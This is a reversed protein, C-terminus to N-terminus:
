TPDGSFLEDYAPTRLFRVARLKMVFDDILEQARTEDIRGAELDRQIFIDLFTATRGLSMAAGNQEKVAGLYAFYTWQVAEQATSAPRTIDYGYGAAMRALEGLARIQEAVEERERIVNESAFQAHLEALEGRKAAILRDTGYLAVRRYDGIIRGRGYADPLGTIIHARRAALIEPTYADFVGDNHTKRYKTFIEKVLPDTEFGYAELGSEVMRWGGNPVIARKLPADTQFGVILENEEDLYGPAHSTISAPTSADVDLVGGDTAREAAMLESLKRWLGGTRETPGALFSADGEYPEYNRQIFDRVDISRTWDGPAFGEWAAADVAAAATPTM